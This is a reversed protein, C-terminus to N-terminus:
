VYVFSQPAFSLGYEKLEKPESFRKVKGLEYAYGIEHDNFYSMFYDSSIGAYQNTKNWLDNIDASIVSCIRVEAVIKKVPATCYIVITDVDRQAVKTRFEYKKEGSLIQDVFQPKIAMLIKCM